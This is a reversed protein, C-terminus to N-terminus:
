IISLLSISYSHNLVLPDTQCSLAEGSGTSRGPAVPLLKLLPLHLVMYTDRTYSLLGKDVTKSPQDKFSNPTHSSPYPSHAARQSYDPEWPSLSNKLITVLSKPFTSIAASSIKDLTIALWSSEGQHPAIRPSASIHPMSFVDTWSSLESDSLLWTQSCLSQHGCKADATYWADLYMM